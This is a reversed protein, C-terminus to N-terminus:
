KGIAFWYFQNANTIGQNYITFGTKAVSDVYNAAQANTTLGIPVIQVNYIATPFAAAFSVAGSSSANISASIGWKLIAGCPLTVSGATDVTASPNAFATTSIKTSSDNVAQTAATSGDKITLATDNVFGTTAIKTTKDGATQTVATSGDKLTLATDNVFATTALATTKDGATQTPAAPTGTFTPSALPAFVGDPSFNKDLQFQTGDYTIRYLKGASITIASSLAAGNNQIAKTALGSIAVTAADDSDTAGALFVFSQGAAYATIAPTPTLTLANKTGGATGAWIYAQAQIQGLNAGHTAATGAGLGTIKYTGFPIDATPAAQGDRPISNTLESVVDAFNADMQSDDIVTGAQFDPYPVTMVGTGDRAM